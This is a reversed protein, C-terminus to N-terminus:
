SVIEQQYTPKQTTEENGNLPITSIGDTATNKEGKIYVIDPGYEELILRWRLM